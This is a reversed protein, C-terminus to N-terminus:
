TPALSAARTPAPQDVVREAQARYRVELVMWLLWLAMALSGFSFRAARSGEHMLPALYALFLLVAGLRPRRAGPILLLAGVFGLMHFGADYEIVYPLALMTASLTAGAAPIWGAEDVRRRATLRGMDIAALLGLSMALIGLPADWATRLFRRTFLSRLTLQRSKAPRFSAMEGSRLWEFWAVWSELGGVVVSAAVLSAGGLVFGGFARWERTLLLWAAATAGLQPKACLWGLVIGAALPRGSRLLLVGAAMPVLWMGGPQGTVLAMISYPALGAVAFILTRHARVEPLARVLIAAAGLGALPIATLWMRAATVFGLPQLWEMVNYLPPPYVAWYDIRAKAFQHQLEGMASPVYLEADRGLDLLTGGTWFALFDCGLNISPRPGQSGEGVFTVIFYSVVTALILLGTLVRAARRLNPTLPPLAV